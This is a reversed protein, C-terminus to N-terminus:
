GYHEFAQHNAEDYNEAVIDMCGPVPISVTFECTTGVVALPNYNSANPDMCGEIPPEPGPVFVEGWVGMVALGFGLMDGDSGLVGTYNGVGVLEASVEVTVTDIGILDAGSIWVRETGELSENSSIRTGNPLIVAVNLDDSVSGFPRQNFSLIVDLDHVGSLTLNWSVNEGQKLFPGQAGSGNWMSTTVQELPRSGNTSLWEDVLLMRATENM